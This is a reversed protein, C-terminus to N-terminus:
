AWVGVVGIWASGDWVRLVKTDTEFLTEGIQADVPRTTSTAVSGVRGSVAQIARRTEPDLRSSGVVAPM